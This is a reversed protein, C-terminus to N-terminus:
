IWMQAPGVKMIEIHKQTKTHSSSLPSNIDLFIDMRISPVSLEEQHRKLATPIDPGYLLRAPPKTSETLIQEGRLRCGCPKLPPGRELPKANMSSTVKEVARLRPGVTRGKLDDEGSIILLRSIRSM